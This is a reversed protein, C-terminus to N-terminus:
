SESQFLVVPRAAGEAPQAQGSQGAFKRVFWHRGVDRFNERGRRRTAGGRMGLLELAIKQRLVVRDLFQFSCLGFEGLLQVRQFPSEATGVLTVGASNAAQCATAVASSFRSSIIVFPQRSPPRKGEKGGRGGM